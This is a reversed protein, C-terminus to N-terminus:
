GRRNPRTSALVEIEARIFPHILLVKRLTIRELAQVIVVVQEESQRILKLVTVAVGVRHLDEPAPEDQRPDKQTFVGIIKSQALSEELLKRSAPRGVTLPVVMGPFIVTNRVPLIPLADPIAPREREGSNESSGRSTAGAPLAPVSREEAKLEPVGPAPPRVWRRRASSSSRPKM